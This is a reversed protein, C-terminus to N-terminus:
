RLEKVAVGGLVRKAVQDDKAAAEGARKGQSAIETRNSQRQAGAALGANCRGARLWAQSLAGIEAGAKGVHAGLAGPVRGPNRRDECCGM